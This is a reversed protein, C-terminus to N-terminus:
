SRVPTEHRALMRYLTARGIGLLEAARVRNGDCLQLVHLAHQYEVEAMTMPTTKQESEAPTLLYDPLDGIDVVSNQAMMCAYNLSNELERINGPWFYRNLVIEARRSLNLGPKSYRAACDMLFHRILLPLDEQRERLPPVPFHVTSLRYFLDERFTGDAVQKRLDRNTAAVIRLEVKVANNDGLPRVERNQLLRLLKAQLLLPMEGIEDLFLTGNAAALVLGPRDDTAGTFSGRKHGFLESEFLTDVISACNCTVFSGLEGSWTHLARAVLEKGSGTEGSVLATTFHPAVRRVRALLHLMAPSRGVVGGFTFSDLLDLETQVERTQMERQALWYTLRDSLVNSALPKNLYDVAGARMAHVASETSHNATHIIIQTEPNLEHIRRILQIGDSGPIALDLLVLHPRFKKVVAITDAADCAWSVAWPQNRVAAHTTELALQERDAVLLRPLDGARQECQSSATQALPTEASYSM